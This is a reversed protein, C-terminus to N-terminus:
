EVKRLEGLKRKLHLLPTFPSSSGKLLCFLFPRSLWHQHGTDPLLALVTTSQIVCSVLLAAPGLVLSCCHTDMQLSLIFQGNVHRSMLDSYTAYEHHSVFSNPHRYGSVIHRLVTQDYPWSLPLM